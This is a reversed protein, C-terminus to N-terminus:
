NALEELSIRQLYHEMSTRGLETLAVFSSRGDAPHATRQVLGQDQLVALWRLGTSYPGDGARAISSITTDQGKSAACHLALLMDWVPDSFLNKDFFHRRKNRASYLRCSLQPRALGPPPQDTSSPLNTIRNPHNMSM